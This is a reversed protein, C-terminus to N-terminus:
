MTEPTTVISGNADAPRCCVRHELFHTSSDAVYMSVLCPAGLTHLLHVLVFALVGMSLGIGFKHSSRRCRVQRSGATGIDSCVSSALLRPTYGEAVLGTPNPLRTTQTRASTTHIKVITKDPFQLGM